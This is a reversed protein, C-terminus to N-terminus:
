WSAPLPGSISLGASTPTILPAASIRDPQSRPAVAYLVVGLGAGVAGAAFCALSIRKELTSRNAADSIAKGNALGGNSISSKDQAGLIALVAAGALGAGGVAMLTIGAVRQGTGSSPSPAPKTLGETPVAMSKAAATKPGPAPKDMSTLNLSPPPPPPKAVAKVPIAIALEAVKGAEVQLNATAPDRGALTATVHYTGPRIRAASYPCPAAKPLVGAISVMVGEPSCHISLSGFTLPELRAIAQHARAQQEAAGPKDDPTSLYRKFAAIAEEPQDLEEYCRAINYRVTPLGMLTDARQLEALAGEYDKDKFLDAALDLYTQVKKRVLADDAPAAAPAPEAASLSLMLTVALAPTM